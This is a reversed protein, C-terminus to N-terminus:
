PSPVTEPLLSKPQRRVFWKQLEIAWFVVTSLGLSIALDRAPLPTTQFIPQLVPSYIVILQLAVTLAVAGLLPRNSLLGIRFLSDRESRMTEALGVRSLALTTFVMTQWTAQGTSWYSYAIALLIVGLLLGVWVIGWGVGRSFISETPRRPSRQMIEREPPEVSLALALLGDALLNVWLIQLPILPLPMGLFPALLIVWLEGANGTLTYNIFKRINDYIVRGEKIAAVITAFNDDLLVMDAADKAVDTGTIGMAIGIDAQKLAPADNVGDGTMAVIHGRSQLAEVIDLKHQPSVRAYVSVEDVQAQLARSSLQSLEPGTLITSNPTIGLERAISQATLPHDGTIMVPRIGATQCTQVAAKAEPRVPDIIGVLGIFTLDKELMAGRQLNGDGGVIQSNLLRFAIGLVRMGNQALQDNDALIKQQVPWDLPHSQGKDWIHSSVALVSDVSGKTFAIATADGCNSLESVLLTLTEPMPAPYAPLRHVTTMRKRDAEFPREAVRPLAQELAAKSLGLRAATMVLAGETPDGVTHVQHPIQPHPELMADNCLIAGTLLWTLSPEAQLVGSLDDYTDLGARGLPTTLDVRHGDVALFTATMRNETLTGTKDSCIVAVSGLTEVAPLKRILAQQKLMRKAGLALTITVVAPLGEPVAAVALSVAVLFMLSLEEGRLLGLGFIIAVLVLTIIALRVGLQDLRQELPTPKPKVTQIATAIRGLETQNGTETVVGLGRGYTITTGMYAMTPRDALAVEVPPEGVSEGWELPQSQKVTPEAEGTLSSEQIRLNATELLRYDAAVLNGTELLVIDGPVLQRASIEQVGGDRRVKVTSVALKKLAAIAQGAQYEQRVGLIANFAVIAFIATANIYDQLALSILAAIILVVVMVATLQKWLIQWLSEGPQETLENLGHQKLRLAVEGQSLGCDANTGLQQLVEAADLQHWTSM